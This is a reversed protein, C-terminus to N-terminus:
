KDIITQYKAKAQMDASPCYRSYNFDHTSFYKFWEDHVPCFYIM